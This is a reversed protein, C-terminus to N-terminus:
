RDKEESERVVGSFQEKGEKANEKTRVPSSRLARGEEGQRIEAERVM